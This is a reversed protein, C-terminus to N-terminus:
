LGPGAPPQAPRDMELSVCVAGRGEEQAGAVRGSVFAQSQAELLEGSVLAPRPGRRCHSPFSDLTWAGSSSADWCAPHPRTWNWLLKLACSGIPPSPSGVVGPVPRPCCSFPRSHLQAGLLPQDPCSGGSLMLGDRCLSTPRTWLYKVESSPPFGLSCKLSLFPPELLRCFRRLRLRMSGPVFTLEPLGELLESWGSGPRPQPRRASQPDPACLPSRPCKPCCLHVQLTQHEM